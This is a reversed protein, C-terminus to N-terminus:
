REIKKEGKTSLVGPAKHAGPTKHNLTEAIRDSNKM